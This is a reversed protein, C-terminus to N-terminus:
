QNGKYNRKLIRSKIIKLFRAATSCVDTQIKLARRQADTFPFPEPLPFAKPPSAQLTTDEQSDSCHSRIFADTGAPVNVRFAYFLNHGCACCGQMICCAQARLCVQCILFCCVFVSKQHHLPAQSGRVFCNPFPNTRPRIVLYTNQLLSLLHTGWLGKKLLPPSM